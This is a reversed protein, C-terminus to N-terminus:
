RFKPCKVTKNRGGSRRKPAKQKKPRNQLWDFKWDWDKKPPENTHIDAQIPVCKVFVGCTTALGPPTEWERSDFAVVTEPKIPKLTLSPPLKCVYSVEISAKRYLSYPDRTKEMKALQATLREKEAGISVAIREKMERVSEALAEDMTKPQCQWIQQPNGKFKKMCDGYALEKSEVCSNTNNQLAEMLWDEKGYNGPPQPGCTGTLAPGASPDPSEGTTVVNQFSAFSEQDRGDIEPTVGLISQAAAEFGDAMSEARKMALDLNTVGKEWDRPRLTSACSKVSAHISEVGHECRAGQGDSGNQNVKEICKELEKKSDANLTTENDPFSQAIDCTAKIERGPTIEPDPVKMTPLDVVPPGSGKLSDKLETNTAPRAFCFARETEPLRAQIINSVESLSKGKFDPDNLDYVEGELHSLSESGSANKGANKQVKFTVRLNKLQKESYDSKGKLYDAKAQGYSAEVWSDIVESNKEFHEEAGDMFVAARSSDSNKKSAEMLIPALEQDRSWASGSAAVAHALSTELNKKTAASLGRKEGERKKIETRLASELSTSDKLASLFDEPKADPYFKQYSKFANNFEKYFSAYASAQEKVLEKTLEKKGDKLERKEKRHLEVDGKLADIPSAMERLQPVACSKCSSGDDGHSIIPFSFWVLILTHRVFRM